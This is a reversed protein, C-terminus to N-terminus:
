QENCEKTYQMERQNTEGAQCNFNGRRKQIWMLPGSREVHVRHATKQTYEKVKSLVEDKTWPLEKKSTKLKSATSPVDKGHTVQRYQQKTYKNIENNDPKKEQLNGEVWDYFLVQCENM